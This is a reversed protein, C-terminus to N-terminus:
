DEEQMDEEDDYHEVGNEDVFVELTYRMQSAWVAAEAVLMKSSVGPGYTGEGPCETSELDGKDDFLERHELVGESYSEKERLVGEVWKSVDCSGCCACFEMDVRMVEQVEFGGKLIDVWSADSSLPIKLQKASKSVVVEGCPEGNPLVDLWIEVDGCKAYRSVAFKKQAHGLTSKSLDYMLSCTEALHKYTPADPASKLIKELIEPPLAQTISPAPACTYM